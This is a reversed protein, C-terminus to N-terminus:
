TMLLCVRVHETHHFTQKTHSTKKKKKGHKGYYRCFLLDLATHPQSHHLIHSIFAASRQEERKQQADKEMKRQGINIEKIQVACFVTNTQREGEPRGGGGAM